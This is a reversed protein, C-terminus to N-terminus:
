SGSVNLKIQADGGQVSYQIAFVVPFLFISSAFSITLLVRSIIAYKSGSYKIM